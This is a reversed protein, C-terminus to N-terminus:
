KYLVGPTYPQSKVNDSAYFDIKLLLTEEGNNNYQRILPIFATDDQYLIILEEENIHRIDEHTM